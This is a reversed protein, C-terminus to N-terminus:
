EKPTRKDILVRAKARCESCLTMREQLLVNQGVLHANEVAIDAKQQYLEYYNRKWDDLDKEVHRLREQLRDIEARLEKRFDEADQSSDKSRVTDANIQAIKQEKSRRLYENVAGGFLVGLLTYLAVPISALFHAIQEM